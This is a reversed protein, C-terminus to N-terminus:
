VSLGGIQSRSHPVPRGANSASSQPSSLTELRFAPGSFAEGDRVGALQAFVPSANARSLATDALYQPQSFPSLARHGAKASRARVPRLKRYSAM